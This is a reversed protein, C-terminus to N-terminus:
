TQQEIWERVAKVDLWIIGIIKDVTKGDTSLPSRLVFERAVLDIKNTYEGDYLIPSKRTCVGEMKREVNEAFSAPKIDRCSKGTLDNGLTQVFGSGL